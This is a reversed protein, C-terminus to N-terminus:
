ECLRPLRLTDDEEWLSCLGARDCDYGRAGPAAKATPEDPGLFEGWGWCVIEAGHVDLACGGGSTSYMTRYPTEPSAPSTWGSRDEWPARCAPEGDLTLGCVSGPAVHGWACVVAGEEREGCVRDGDVEFSVFTGPLVPGGESCTIAGARDSGCMFGDGVDVRGYSCAALDRDSATDPHDATEVECAACALLLPITVRRMWHLPRAM